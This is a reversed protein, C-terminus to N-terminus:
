HAPSTPVYDPSRPAYDPSRPQAPPFFSGLNTMRPRRGGQAQIHDRHARRDAQFKERREAIGRQWKDWGALDWILHVECQRRKPNWITRTVLAVDRDGDADKLFHADLHMSLTKGDPLTSPCPRPKGAGTRKLFGQFLSILPVGGRSHDTEEGLKYGAFHTEHAPHMFMQVEQGDPLIETQKSPPKAIAIVTSSKGQEALTTLEDQTPLNDLTRTLLMAMIGTLRGETEARKTDATQRAKAATNRLNSANFPM